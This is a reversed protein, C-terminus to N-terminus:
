QRMDDIMACNFYIFVSLRGLYAGYTGCIARSPALYRRVDVRERLMLAQLAVKELLHAVDIARCRRVGAPLPLGKAWDDENEASIQARSASGHAV